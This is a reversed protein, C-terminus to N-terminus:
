IWTINERAGDFGWPLSAARSSVLDTKGPREGPNRRYFFLEAYLRVFPRAAINFTGPRINQM